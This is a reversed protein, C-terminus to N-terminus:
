IQKVAPPTSDRMLLHHCSFVVNEPGKITLKVYRPKQEARAKFVVDEFDATTYTQNNISTFVSQENEVYFNYVFELNFFKPEGMDFTFYPKSVFSTDFVAQEFITGNIEDERVTEFNEQEFESNENPITNNSQAVEIISVPYTIGM